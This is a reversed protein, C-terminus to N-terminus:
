PMMPSRCAAITGCVAAAAALLTAHDHDAHLSIRLRATGPPVSPPRIARIDYGREQLQRAARVALRADGVVVPVIYHDGM